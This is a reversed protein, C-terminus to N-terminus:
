LTTQEHIIYENRDGTFGSLENSTRGSYVVTGAKNDAAPKQFGPTETTTLSVQTLKKFKSNVKVQTPAIDTRIM